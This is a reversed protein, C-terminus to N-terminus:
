YFMNGMGKFRNIEETDPVSYYVDKEDDKKAIYKVNDTEISNLTATILESGSLAIKKYITMVSDHNTIDFYRQGLIRGQDIKETILHISVGGENEGNYLMWFATLIGKFKPLLSGHTNLCILNSISLINKPILQSNGVSLLIDPKTEKLSKYFAPTKVSLNRKVRINYCKALAQVSYFYRGERQLQLKGLIRYIIFAISLFIFKKFGCLKLLDIKSLHPSPNDDIFVAIIERHREEFIRALYIPVFFPENRTIIVIKM